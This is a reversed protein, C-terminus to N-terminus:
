AYKERKLFEWYPVFLEDHSIISTIKNLLKKLKLYNYNFAWEYNQGGIEINKTVFRWMRLFNAYMRGIMCTNWYTYDVQEYQM